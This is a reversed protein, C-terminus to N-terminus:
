AQLPTLVLLAITDKCNTPADVCKRSENDVFIFNELSLFQMDGSCPCIL